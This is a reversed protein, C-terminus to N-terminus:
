VEVGSYKLPVTTVLEELQLNYAADSGSYHM